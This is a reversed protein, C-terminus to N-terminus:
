VHVAKLDTLECFSKLMQDFKGYVFVQHHGKVDRVDPVGSLEVEVATRCGGAYPAQVNGRVRGTGYLMTEPRQFGLITIEQGPKWLVQLAVGTDSEAHSRLSFPAPPQDFGNLKTACTCHSGILTNNVTNPAPDQMFGPRDFLRMALMLTVAADADAECGGVRGEDLLKSWALCPGCSVKCGGVLPACDVSIGQCNEAAMIRRAVVYNRAANLLDGRQPEVLEKSEIAYHKVIERMEDTDPAERFENVWRALPVYHLTTGIKGAQLDGQAADSVICIRSRGMEGATKLMRLGTALWTHDPTMAVYTRPIKRLVRQQKPLSTGLPSFVILPTPGRNQALYTVRPWSELHMVTVLLGDPPDRALRQMAREVSEPEHLPVPDIDLDVGLEQAANGLTTIYEAQCKKPDFSKGPWSMWYQEESPRVFLARLRARPALERDSAVLTSPLGFVGMPYGLATAGTLALFSRRGM